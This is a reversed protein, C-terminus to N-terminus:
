PRAVRAFYLVKADATACDPAVVWVDLTSADDATPLLIM